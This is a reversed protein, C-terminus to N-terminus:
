NGTLARQILNRSINVQNGVYIVLLVIATTMVAEKVHPM